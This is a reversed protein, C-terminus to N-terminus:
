QELARWIDGFPSIPYIPYPENNKAIPNAPQWSIMTSASRGSWKQIPQHTQWETLTHSIHDHLCLLLNLTLRKEGWRSKSNISTLQVIDLLRPPKKRVYCSVRFFACKKQTSDMVCPNVDMGLVWSQTFLVGEHAANTGSPKRSCIQERVDQAIWRPFKTSGSAISEMSVSFTKGALFYWEQQLCAFHNRHYKHLSSSIAPPPTPGRTQSFRTAFWPVDILLIEMNISSKWMFSPPDEMAM